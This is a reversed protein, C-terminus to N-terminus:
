RNNLLGYYENFLPYENMSNKKNLYKENNNQNEEGLELNFLDKNVAFINNNEIHTIVTNLKKKDRSIQKRILFKEHASQFLFIDSEVNNYQDKNEIMQEIIKRDIKLNNYNNNREKDIKELELESEHM